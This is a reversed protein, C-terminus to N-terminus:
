LYQPMRGGHHPPLDSRGLDPPRVRDPLDPDISFKANCLAVGRRNWSDSPSPSGRSDAARACRCLPRVRRPEKARAGWGSGSTVITGIVDSRTGVRIAATAANTALEIRCM